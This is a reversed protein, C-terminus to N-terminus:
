LNITLTEARPFCSKAKISQTLPKPQSWEQWYKADLYVDQVNVPEHFELTAQIKKHQSLKMLHFILTDEDIYAVDRLPFYNLRFPQIKFGGEQALEFAGKKWAVHESVSTTGSPFLIIRQGRTLASQIGERVASRNSSKSRDVFVTRAQRAAAGIIPWTGVEKKAVFSALPIHKFLLPIDVYSIHNGLFLTSAAETPKGIVNVEINLREMLEHSWNLKIKEIDAKPAKTQKLYTLTRPFIMLSKYLSHLNM